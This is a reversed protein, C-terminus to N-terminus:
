MNAKPSDEMRQLACGGADVELLARTHNHRMVVSEVLTQVMTAMFIAM